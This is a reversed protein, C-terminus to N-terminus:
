LMKVFNQHSSSRIPKWKAGGNINSKWKDIIVWVDANQLFIQLTTQIKLM